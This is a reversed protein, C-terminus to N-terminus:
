EKCLEEFLLGGVGVALGAFIGGGYLRVAVRGVVLRSPAPMMTAIATAATTTSAVVAGCTSAIAATGAVWRIWAWVAFLERSAFGVGVNGLIPAEPIFLVLPVTCFPDTILHLRVVIGPM